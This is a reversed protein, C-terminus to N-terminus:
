SENRGYVRAQNFLEETDLKQYRRVSELYVDYPISASPRFEVVVIGDGESLSRVVVLHVEDTPAIPFDRKRGFIANTVEKTTIMAGPGVGRRLTRCRVAGLVMLPQALGAVNVEDREYTPFKELYNHVARSAGRLTRKPVLLGFNATIRYPLSLASYSNVVEELAQELAPLVELNRVVGPIQATM